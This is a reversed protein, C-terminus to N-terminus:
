LFDLSFAGPSLQSRSRTLYVGCDNKEASSGDAFETSTVQLHITLSLSESTLDTLYRDRLYGLSHVTSEHRHLHPFDMATITFSLASDATLAPWFGATASCGMQEFPLVFDFSGFCINFSHMLILVPVTWLHILGM